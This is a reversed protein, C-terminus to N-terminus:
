TGTQCSPSGVGGADNYSTGSSSDTNTLDGVDATNGLSAITVKQIENQVVTGAQGGYFEGRTGDSTGGISAMATHLVYGDDTSDSGSDLTFYHIEDGVGWGDTENYGGAAVIRTASCVVAGEMIAHVGVQGYDTAANTTHFNHQSVTDLPFNSTSGNYGGMILYKSDGNSTSHDYQAVTYLDGADASSGTTAITLYEMDSSYSLGGNSVRGGSFFAVTGNSAGDSGGLAAPTDLDGFDQTSGTSAVTVYDIEEVGRVNTGPSVLVSGGAQLARTGNSGSGKANCRKTNMQGFESTSVDSALTKYLIYDSSVRGTSELKHWGGFIVATTGAWALGTVVGLGMVTEIDGVAVGMIKEIDGAEVNMFKEVDAM